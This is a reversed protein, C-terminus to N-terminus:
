IQQVGHERYFQASKSNVVNGAGSLKTEPYCLSPEEPRRVRRGVAESRVRDFQALLDRRLANLRSAPVFWPMTAESRQMQVKVVRYPTDGSKRLQAEVSEWAKRPDLAADFPGELQHTLRHVGDTVEVSLRDESWGVTMEVPIQRRVRCHELMAVFRRDYNRYLETGTRLGETRNPWFRFGEVRQVATGVWAGRGDSFCLGDGTSLESRSASKYEVCRGQVRVVRGIPEGLSKPTDFSAVGQQVGDIYYLTSGRSFSKQPDPIFDLTTEGVSTRCGEDGHSAIWQDLQRRYWGVVNRVYNLDKLRGEIKFSTAGAEILADLRPTLNLDRVSLLHKGQLLVRHQEDVLDYPMRCAQICAGRNGSRSSMSRSLYCRGSYAVCIAGHVFVEIETDPVARSITAIEELTAARELIIRTFGMRSWFRIVQPDLNFMQTSAHLEIPPLDMRLFAPDQIILADAGVRYLDHVMREAEALEDEFILTNLTVYVSAEFRHAYDCLRGIEELNVGADVRAGFRPAGVYLADAGCDIAACGHVFDKAPALLELRKM